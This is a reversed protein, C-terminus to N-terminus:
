GSDRSNPRMSKPENWQEHLTELDVKGKEKLYATVEDHNENEGGEGGQWGGGDWKVNPTGGNKADLYRAERATDGNGFYEFRNEQADRTREFEFDEWRIDRLIDFRHHGTGPWGIVVRQETASYKSADIENKPSNIIHQKVPKFWSNCKDTTVKDEFFGSVISNFDDTAEVSPAISAYSQTQVKRIAKAIFTASLEAQLPVTGGMGNGQAQMVFFYNPFGPAMMGLYTEPYGIDGDFSWKDVLDVGDKGITPFRPAYGDSFGTATIIADVERLTGDATKLGTETASVIPETVYEVHPLLLSELYGPAPTIRKCGPAYDPLVRALWEEDGNLRTLMTKVITERLLNNQPSNKYTGALLGHFGSELNKRYKVYSTPDDAWQKRQEKSYTPGGPAAATAEHLSARFTPSIWVKSRVYHDLHSVDHVINPLIQQGSAGNGIVAVRKGRHEYSHDWEATHILKGKFTALGPIPPTHTKNLRGPATVLFDAQDVVAEGTKLDKIIVEWKSSEGLWTAKIVEHNFSIKDRVKYESIINEYYQQIEAAKPYYESWNYNPAFTLQYAHSPVDCRTGPYNNVAWTGGVRENKEYVKITHNRVKKSLLIATAVGAIGTGIIITKVPRHPEYAKHTPYYKSQKSQRSKQTYTSEHPEQSAPALHRKISSLRDAASANQSTAM